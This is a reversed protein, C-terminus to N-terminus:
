FDDDEGIFGNRSFASDQDSASPITGWRAVKREADIVGRERELRQEVASRAQEKVERRITDRSVSEDTKRSGPLVFVEAGSNVATVSHTASARRASIGGRLPEGSSLVPGRSPSLSRPASSGSVSPVRPAALVPISGSNLSMNSPRKRLPPPGGAPFGGSQVINNSYSATRSASRSASRSPSRSPSAQRSSSSPARPKNTSGHAHKPLSIPGNHPTQHLPIVHTPSVRGPNVGSAHRHHDYPIDVEKPNKFYYKGETPKVTASVGVGNASTAVVFPLKPTAARPPPSTSRSWPDDNSGVSAIAATYSAIVSASTSSASTPISIQTGSSSSLRVGSSRSPQKEPQRQPQKKFLNEELKKIRESYLARYLRDVQVEYALKHLYENIVVARDNKDFSLTSMAEIAAKGNKSPIRSSNRTQAQTQAQYYNGISPIKSGSNASSSPHNREWKRCKALNIAEKVMRRRAEPAVYHESYIGSESLTKIYVLESANSNLVMLAYGPALQKLIAGGSALAVPGSSAALRRAALIAAPIKKTSSIPPEPAVTMPMTVPQKKALSSPTSSLICLSRFKNKRWDVLIRFKDNALAREFATRNYKKDTEENLEEEPADTITETNFEEEILTESDDLKHSESRARAAPGECFAESRAIACRRFMYQLSISQLELDDEAEGQRYLPLAFSHAGLLSGSDGPTTEESGFPIFAKLLSQM